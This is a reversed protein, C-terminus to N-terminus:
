DTFWRIMDRFRKEWAAENHKAGEEVIYRLSGEHLRKSLLKNMAHNTLLYEMSIDKEM